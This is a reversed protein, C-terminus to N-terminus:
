LGLWMRLSLVAFACQMLALAASSWLLNYGASEKDEKRAAAVSLFVYISVLAFLLAVIGAAGQGVVACATLYLVFGTASAVYGKNLQDKSLFFRNKM